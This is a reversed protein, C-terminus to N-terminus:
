LRLREEHTPNAPGGRRLYDRYYEKAKDKQNKTFSIISLNFYPEFLTPDQSIAEKFHFEADTANNTKGAINGLLIHAKANDPQLSLSRRIEDAADNYLGQRYLSDGLMFQAFPNKRDGAVLISRRFQRTAAVPDQLRLHVIGLNVMVEWAGPDEDVILQLNGRAAQFDGKTFLRNAVQNLDKTMQRLDTTAQNLEQATPRDNITFSPNAVTRELLEMEEITLEMKKDGNIRAMADKFDADKEGMRDGAKMLLKAAGVQAALKAKQKDIIERLMTVEEKGRENLEDGNLQALLDEEAQKLRKELREMRLNAQTNSKQLNEIKAKAVVLRQKALLIVDKKSDADEQVADLNAKAENLEKSLTVNQTILQQIRDAENMKLLAKMQDREDILGDREVQLEDVMKESQKLQKALDDVTRNVEAILADKEKVTARLADIQDQQGEVVRGNIKTTKAIVAELRKTETNAALLAKQTSALRMLTRAQETVAKDRAHAMADRERRLQEIQQNLDRVQDRLPSAALRTLQSELGQIQQRLRASGADRQNPRQSLETKLRQITRQLDQIKRSSAGTPDIANPVVLTPKTEGPIEIFPTEGADQEKKQQELAKEHIKEMAKTTSDSRFKLGEKRFDPHTVKIIDFFSRAKRYKSFAKVFDEKEEWEEAEKVLSWAQFYLEGPDLRALEEPTQAWSQATILAALLLGILHRLHTM